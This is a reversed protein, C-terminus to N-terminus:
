DLNSKLWDGREQIKQDVIAIEEPFWEQAVMEKIQINCKEKILVQFIEDELTAKIYKYNM